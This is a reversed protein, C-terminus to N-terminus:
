ILSRDGFIDADHRATGNVSAAVMQMGAQKRWANLEDFGTLAFPIDFISGMSARVAEVSYPDCCAEM